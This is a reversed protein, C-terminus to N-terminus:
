ARDIVEFVCMAQKEKKKQRRGVSRAELLSVHACAANGKSLAAKPSIPVPLNPSVSPHARELFRIEFRGDDHVEVERKLSLAEVTETVGSHESHRQARQAVRSNQDKTTRHVCRRAAVRTAVKCAHREKEQLAAFAGRQGQWEVPLSRLADSAHHGIEALKELFPILSEVNAAGVPLRPGSRLACFVAKSCRFM